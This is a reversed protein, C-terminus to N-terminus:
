NSIFTCSSLFDCFLAISLTANTTTHSMFLNDLSEYVTVRVGPKMVEDSHGPRSVDRPRRNTLRAIVLADGTREIDSYTHGIIIGCNNATTFKRRAETFRDVSELYVDDFPRDNFDAYNLVDDFELVPIGMDTAITHITGKGCGKLGYVFIFRSVWVNGDILGPYHATTLILSRPVELTTVVPIYNTVALRFDGDVVCEAVSIYFERLEVQRTIDGDFVKSMAIDLLSKSCVTNTVYKRGSYLASQTCVVEVIPPLERYRIQTHKGPIATPLTKKQSLFRKKETISRTKSYVRNRTSDFLYVPVNPKAVFELGTFLQLCCVPASSEPDYRPLDIKLRKVGQLPDWLVAPVGPNLVTFTKKHSTWSNLLQSFSTSSYGLAGNLNSVHWWREVGLQQQAIQEEETWAIQIWRTITPVHTPSIVIDGTVIGYKLTQLMDVQPICTMRSMIVFDSYGDPEVWKITNKNRGTTFRALWSRIGLSVGLSMSVINLTTM